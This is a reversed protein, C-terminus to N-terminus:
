IEGRGYPRPKSRGSQGTAAFHRYCWLFVLWTIFAITAIWGDHPHRVHYPDYEHNSELDCSMQSYDFSGHQASLCNDVMEEERIFRYSVTFLASAALLALILFLLKVSKTNSLLASSDSRQRM